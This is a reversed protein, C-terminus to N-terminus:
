YGNLILVEIFQVQLNGIISVRKFISEVAAKDTIDCEEFIINKKALKEVRLICEPKDAKDGSTLLCIWNFVNCCNYNYIHQGSNHTITNGKYANGMNDIVVVEFNEKLLELLTHSGIYGAGGTVLVNWKNAM